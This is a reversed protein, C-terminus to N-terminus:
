IKEAMHEFCFLESEAQYDAIAKAKMEDTFYSPKAYAKRIMIGVIGMMAPLKEKFVPEIKDHVYSPALGQQRGVMIARATMGVLKCIEVDTRTYPNAQAPVSWLAAALIIVKKIM